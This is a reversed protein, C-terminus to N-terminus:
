ARAQPTILRYLWESLINILIVALTIILVTGQVVPYDRSMVGALLLRGLGPLGFVEEVIVAGGILTGIEVGVVIILPTLSNKASFRFLISRRSLGMARGVTIYDRELTDATETYVFRTFSGILFIALTLVPLTMHAAFALPDALLPEFGRSPFWRLGSAFWNLLLLGLWFSPIAIFVTAVTRITADRGSGRREAALTGLLISAPVAATVSLVILWITVPAATGIMEIVPRQSRNSVGLDGTALNGLFIGYQVPISKDLGYAARIEALREANDQRGATPGLLLEAPDGPTLRLTVFVVTVVVWLILLVRVAGYLRTM